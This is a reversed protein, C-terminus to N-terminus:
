WMAPYMSYSGPDDPGGPPRQNLMERIRALLKDWGVTGKVLFDQAGARMAEAHTEQTYDASYILVPVQEPTYRARLRRLVDLGSMDPMMIDLLVLRPVRQDILALAAAGSTVAVAEFGAIRLIRELAAATDRHDDVICIM